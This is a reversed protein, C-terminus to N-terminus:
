LTDCRADTTPAAPLGTCLVTEGTRFTVDQGSEWNARVATVTLATGGGPSASSGVLTTGYGASWVYLTCVRTSVDLALRAWYDTGGTITIGAPDVQGVVGANVSLTTGNDTFEMGCEQANAASVIEIIRTNTPTEVSDIDFAFDLTVDGTESITADSIASQGAGNIQLGNSGSPHAFAVVSAGGAMTCTDASAASACTAGSGGEYDNLYLASGGGGGGGYASHGPGPNPWMQASATLAFLLLALIRAIMM